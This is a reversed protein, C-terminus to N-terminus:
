VFMEHKCGYFGQASWQFYKVAITEYESTRGWHVHDIKFRTISANFM